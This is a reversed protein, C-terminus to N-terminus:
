NHSAGLRNSAMILSSAGENNRLNLRRCRSRSVLARLMRKWWLKALGRNYDVKSIFVVGKAVTSRNIANMMPSSQNPAVLKLRL